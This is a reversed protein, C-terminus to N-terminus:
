LTVVKDDDRSGLANRADFVLRAHETSGTWTTAPTRADAAGGRRGAAFDGEGHAPDPAASLGHSRLRDVFPDHFSVRVGRRALQALTEVAASERLDGVDPKYTVGLALVARM